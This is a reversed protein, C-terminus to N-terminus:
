YVSGLLSVINCKAEEGRGLFVLTTNNNYRMLGLYYDGAKAYVIRNDKYIEDIPSQAFVTLRSLLNDQVDFLSFLESYTSLEGDAFLYRNWVLDVQNYIIQPVYSGSYSASSLTKCDDAYPVDDITIPLMTSTLSDRIISYTSSGSYVNVVIAYGNILTVLTRAKNKKEPSTLTTQNLAEGSDIGAIASLNDLTADAIVRILYSGDEAWISKGYDYLYNGAPVAIPYYSTGDLHLYVTQKEVNSVDVYSIVGRTQAAQWEWERETYTHGYDDHYTYVKVNDISKIPIVGTKVLVFIVMAITALVTLVIAIYKLVNKM